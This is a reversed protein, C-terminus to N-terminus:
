QGFDFRFSLTLIRVMKVSRLDEGYTQMKRLGPIARTLFSIMTGDYKSFAQDRDRPIPKCIETGDEKEFLAWRWQDEHRDWDGILM